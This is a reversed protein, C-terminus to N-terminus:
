LTVKLFHGTFQPIKRFQQIGSLMSGFFNMAGLAFLEQGADVKLKGSFLKTLYGSFTSVRVEYGHLAALTKSNAVEVM